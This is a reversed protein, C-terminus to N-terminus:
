ADDFPSAPLRDLRTLALDPIMAIWRAHGANEPIANLWDTLPESHASRKSVDGWALWFRLAENFPEPKEFAVLHGAGPILKLKAGPISKALSESESPSIVTDDCGAIVLTPVHIKGIWAAADSREAMGLLAGIIGESRASAMLGRVTAAMAEDVNSTSLMKAAMAEVVVSPGKQRVEEAATRRSAAAEPSDPGAKTGVLVLGRLLDPFARAFELAVYGGMSHGVLVVPGTGLRKLLEQVDNAYSSMSVPGASPESEGLGRLDPALVRYNAKFAEVQKSWAGRSLPFGHIFVLPFGQGEDTYALEINNFVMNM